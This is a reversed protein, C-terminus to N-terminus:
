RHHVRRRLRLRFAKRRRLKAAARAHAKVGSSRGAFRFAEWNHPEVFHPTPGARAQLLAAFAAHALVVQRYM